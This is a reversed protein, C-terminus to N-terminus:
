GVVCGHDGCQGVEFKGASEYSRVVVVDGREGAELM